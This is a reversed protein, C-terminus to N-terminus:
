LEFDEPFPYPFKRSAEWFIAKSQSKSLGIHRKWGLILHAIMSTRDMKRQKNLKNRMFKDYLYKEISESKLNEGLLVKDLYLEASSEDYQSFLWFSFSAITPSVLKSKEYRKCYDAIEPRQELLNLGETRTFMIQSNSADAKDIKGHLYMWVLRVVGGLIVTNIKEEGEAFLIDGMTRNKGQDMFAFAKKDVGTVVNFMQPQGSRIVSFLRHQGQILDKEKAFVISDGTFMWNKNEMDQTYKKVVQLSPKRNKISRNNYFNLIHRAEEPTIEMIESGLTTKPIWKKRDGKLSDTLEKSM